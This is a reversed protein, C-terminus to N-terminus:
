QRTVVTSALPRGLLESLPRAVLGREALGDLVRSVEALWERVGADSELHGDHLLLIDGARTRRLLRDALGRVRRNGFDGARRSFGVAFMGHRRLAPWLRPSVIGVPPRFALPRVGLPELAANCNAIEAAVTSPSRLMLFVPHSASHNAVEHGERVMRRILEPYAAAHNGIVFFAARVGRERLLDLLPGTTPGHPGDDFTLAVSKGDPRGRTLTTGFFRWRPVFPAVVCALLFLGLPIATLRVDIATLGAGAVLAVLGATHAPLWGPPDSGQTVSDTTGM